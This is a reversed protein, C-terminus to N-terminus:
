AGAKRAKFANKLNESLACGYGTMKALLKGDPSAIEVDAEAAMPQNRRAKISINVTGNEPIEGYQEYNKLSSPLSPLGFLKTTWLIMLQYVSDIIQPSSYFRELNEAPFWDRPAAFSKVEAEIGDQSYSKISTIVRLAEGHFLDNEYAENITDPYAQPNELQFSPKADTEAPLVSLVVTLSANPAPTNNSDAFIKCEVESTKGKNVLTGLETRLGETNSTFTIGRLVKLDKYGAFHLEPYAKCATQVAIESLVAMPVVYADNMVHSKIWPQKAPNM